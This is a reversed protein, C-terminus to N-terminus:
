KTKGKKYRDKKCVSCFTKTDPNSAGCSCVWRKQIFHKGIEFNDVEVM